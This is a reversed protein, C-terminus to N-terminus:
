PMRSFETLEEQVLENCGQARSFTINYYIRNGDKYWKSLCYREDPQSVPQGADTGKYSGSPCYYRKLFDFGTFKTPKEAYSM